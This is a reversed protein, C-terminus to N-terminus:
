AGYTRLSRYRMDAYMRSCRKHILIALLAVEDIVHLFFKKRICAKTLTFKLIVIRSYRTDFRYLLYLYPAGCGHISINSISTLYTYILLNRYINNCDSPNETLDNSCIELKRCRRATIKSM